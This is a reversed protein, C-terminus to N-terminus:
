RPRTKSQPQQVPQQQMPMRLMPARGTEPESLGEALVAYKDALKRWRKTSASDPAKAALDLCRQAERQYDRADM